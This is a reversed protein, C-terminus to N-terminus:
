LRINIVNRTTIPSLAKNKANMPLVNPWSKRTV